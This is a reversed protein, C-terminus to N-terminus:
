RVAIVHFDAKPKFGVGIAGDLAYLVWAYRPEYVSTTSSWFGARADSISIIDYFAPTHRRLDVLSDLERINPVRWNNGEVTQDKNLNAVAHIAAEWSVSVAPLRNGMYWCRCTIRDYIQDATQDDPTLFREANRIDPELSPGSVPWIMYSAHKMGRYVKGGGLHVYWAQGPIRACETRTWYYGNFVGIFPHGEPLAPNIKQHSILSFLERRSPLRWQRSGADGSRSMEDVFAAAEQWTLPFESLGAHVPWVCGTSQDTVIDHYVKFRNKGSADDPKKGDGDHGSGTCDIQQGNADYCSTQDTISLEMQVMGPRADMAM